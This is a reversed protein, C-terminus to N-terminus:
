CFFMAAIVLIFAIILIIRNTIIEKKVLENQEFFSKNSISIQQNTERFNTIISSELSNISQSIGDLSNTINTLKSNVSSVKEFIEALINQHKDFHKELDIAKLREVENKLSDIIPLFTRM